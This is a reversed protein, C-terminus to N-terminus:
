GLQARMNSSANRWLKEMSDSGGRARRRRFTPGTSSSSATTPRPWSGEPAAKPPRQVRRCGPGARARPFKPSVAGDIHGQALLAKTLFASGKSRSQRGHSLAREDNTGRYLQLSDHRQTARDAVRALPQLSASAHHRSPALRLFRAVVGRDACIVLMHNTVSVLM